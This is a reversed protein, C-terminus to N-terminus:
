KNLENNLKGMLEATPTPLSGFPFKIGLSDYKTQCIKKFPLLEKKKVCAFKNVLSKLTIINEVNDNVTPIIVQRITTPINKKDLVSLFELVTDLKCGVHKLYDTNNTYKIDLLVRDTFDLLEKVTNNLISGSTDLCTNISNKKCLAFVQKVFEAQALPEGGSVTIGGDLGFYEVYRSAKEVVQSATYTKGDAFKWTDPNHCCKCRLNCGQMFVVYRIGPGDVTGLSEISHIKGLFLSIVTKIFQASFWSFICSLFVPNTFLLHLQIRTSSVMSINKGLM